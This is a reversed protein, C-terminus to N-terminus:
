SVEVFVHSAEEKRLSLHYGKIMVEIPDGLPAIREMEITSGPVVGMDLLRRHASGRGTVRTIRAKEGPSLDKLQKDPMVKVEKSSKAKELKRICEEIFGSMHKLCEEKRYGGGCYQEFYGLWESGGRPCMEIFEIFQVLKEFTVSSIAHEMKCADEEAQRADIKLINTLFNRLIGHRRDVERAVKLGKETLEVYEYKEHEILGKQLLTNLMSTVTPLKVMMKQAIDKVRVAKKDKELNFIAELYDEVTSSLLETM